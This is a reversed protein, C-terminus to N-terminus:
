NFTSTAKTVFLNTIQLWTHLAQNLTNKQFLLESISDNLTMPESCHLWGVACLHTDEDDDDDYSM